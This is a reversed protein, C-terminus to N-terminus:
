AFANDIKELLEKYEEVVEDTHAKIYIIDEEKAAEELRKAQESLGCAGINLSTSKLAHVVIRYNEWDENKYRQIIGNVKNEAAYSKIMEKYFDVDNM